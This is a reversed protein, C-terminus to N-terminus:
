VVYTLPKLKWGEHEPLDIFPKGANPLLRASAEEALAQPVDAYFTPIPNPVTFSNKTLEAWEAHRGGIHLPTGKPQLFSAIYVLHVIKSRIEDSVTAVAEAGPIGAYSHFVMVIREATSAAEEIATRIAATDEALGVNQPTNHGISPLKASSVSYGLEELRTQVLKMHWPQHYAGPVAVVHTKAM